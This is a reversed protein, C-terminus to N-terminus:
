KSNNCSMTIKNKIDEVKERGVTFRRHADAFEAGSLCENFLVEYLRHITDRYTKEIADLDQSM